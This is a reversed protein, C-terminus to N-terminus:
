RSSKREYWGIRFETVSDLQPFYPKIDLLPSDNVMDIGKIMLINGDVNELGVISLGLPNPRRPARTSFLGHQTDDSYPIVILNFDKSLHLWYILIIHSFGDLDALGATFEPFVEITGYTESFRNPQIPTLKPENFPTHL